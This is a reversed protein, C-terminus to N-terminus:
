KREELMVEVERPANGERFVSMRLVDGIKSSELIEEMSNRESLKKENVSVIIDHERIGAKDAPSNELIGHHGAVGEGWVLIGYDIPLKMKKQLDETVPIYRIGLLPKRIHGFEQVDALDSKGRNIPIAFGINEAGYVIASNIGIVEGRLNILPGGSNGPNIAADTQILGRLHEAGGGDDSTATIFRSLGSVIGASVTNQFEGLANGLAIVTQGLLISNSDGLKIVPLDDGEIKLIAVDNLPDRALVKATYRDDVSTIVTYEADADIVVHKNTLIIGEPTAIFGSGCGVRVKGNETRPLHSIIEKRDASKKEEKAVEDIEQWVEEPISAEVSSEEKGIIISVVAPLTDQIAKITSEEHTM